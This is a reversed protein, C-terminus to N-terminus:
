TALHLPILALVVQDGDVLGLRERLNVAAVIELINESHHTRQAIVVAAEVEGNVKIRYCIVDGFTRGEHSFGTVILPPSQRMRNVARKSEEDKIAVNLTGSYPEFGFAGRFRSAYVEVYYAGEGLGQVVQGTIEIEDGPPVFAIELGSLISFLEQRGRQTVQLMMGSVTHSRTVYDETVCTSVRRSATQQSVKLLEGLESTTIMVRGHIAGKRALMYLTFWIEPTIM